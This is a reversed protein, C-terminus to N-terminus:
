YLCPTVCIWLSSCHGDGLKPASLSSTGTIAIVYVAKALSQGPWRYRFQPVLGEGLYM